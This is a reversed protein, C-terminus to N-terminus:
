RRYLLIAHAYLIGEIVNSYIIICMIVVTVSLVQIFSAPLNQNLLLYIPSEITENMNDKAFLHHTVNTATYESISSRMPLSSIWYQEMPQTIEYLVANCIPLIFSSCIFFTRLRKIGFAEVRADFVLFTYRTVAIILSNFSLYDRISGYFFRLGHILHRAVSEPIIELEHNVIHLVVIYLTIFPWSILQVISYHKIICQVVKGNEQHAERKTNRYLKTNIITALPQILFCIILFELTTINM